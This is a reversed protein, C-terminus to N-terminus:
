VVCIMVRFRIERNKIVSELIKLIVTIKRQFTSATNACDYTCNKLYTTGITQLQDHTRLVKRENESSCCLRAVLLCVFWSIFDVWKQVCEKWRLLIKVNTHELSTYFYFRELISHYVTSFSCHLLAIISINKCDTFIHRGVSPRVFHQPIYLFPRYTSANNSYRLRLWM